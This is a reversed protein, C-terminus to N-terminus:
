RAPRPAPESVPRWQAHRAGWGPGVNTIPYAAGGGSPMVYLQRRGTRTSTFALWKGDPSVAPHSNRIGTRTGGGPRLVAHEFVVSEDSHTLREVAGGVSARVLDVAEGFRATYYLWRGDPSWTHIDSDGNHFHYVDWRV